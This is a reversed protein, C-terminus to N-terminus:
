EQGLDTKTGRHLLGCGEELVGPMQEVFARIEDRVRRYHGMAEEEDEVGAALKPPDDFRKHVLRTRAPFYPCAEKANDCLTVVYHFELDGLAGIGKSRQHSIDVGAEAMAKVARPDMGRPNVGASHAELQGGKLHEIWAEAM